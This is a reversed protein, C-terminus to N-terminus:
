DQFKDKFLVQKKKMSAKNSQHNLM